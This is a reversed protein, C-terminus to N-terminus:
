SYLYLLDMLLFGQGTAIFVSLMRSVFNCENVWRM